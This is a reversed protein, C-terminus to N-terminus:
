LYSQINLYEVSAEQKKKILNVLKVKYENNDVILLNGNPLTHNSEQSSPIYGCVQLSQNSGPGSSTNIDKWNINFLQTSEEYDEDIQFIKIGRVLDVLIVFPNSKEKIHKLESGRITSIGKGSSISQDLM